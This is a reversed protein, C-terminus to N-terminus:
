NRSFFIVRAACCLHMTHHRSGRSGCLPRQFTSPPRDQGRPRPTGGRPPRKPLSASSVAPHQETPSCNAEMPKEKRKKPFLQAVWATGVGWFIDKLAPRLRTAHPLSFLFPKEQLSKFWGRLARPQRTTQGAPEPRGGPPRASLLGRFLLMGRPFAPTESCLTGKGSCPDVRAEEQVHSASLPEASSPWHGLGSSPLPPM